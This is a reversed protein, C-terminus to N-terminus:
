TRRGNSWVGRMAPVGDVVSFRILDARQGIAIHGRDNLGAAEAPARTVTRIGKALNDQDLGLKVAGMLLSSPAYDSSLIDLLGQEALDAASVNGSHSGGRLYNPAGMIVKLGHQHCAKAAEATTPFEAIRCGQHRSNEVDTETTDDHSALTAGLRRGAALSAEQHRDRVRASLEKLRGFYAYIEDGKMGSKGGVYQAMKAEDRFQRQGPTHDMLSLIGIDDETSFEDLEEPLTESCVEARLHLYHDISLVGAKKHAIIADAVPRAYRQYDANDERIISGVRLADFVTTVGVSALERDHALVAAPRPWSVGPRPRMHRELNDTHLEVLGPALYDGDLDEAGTPVSSGTDIRAIRGDEIVLSGTIVEDDLVLRANALVSNM